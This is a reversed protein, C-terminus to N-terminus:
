WGEGLIGIVAVTPLVMGGLISMVAVAPLVM